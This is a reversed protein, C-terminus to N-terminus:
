LRSFVPSLFNIIDFPLYKEEDIGKNALSDSIKNFSRLIHIFTIEWGGFNSQYLDFAVKINSNYIKYRLCCQNVLLLSDSYIQLKSNEKEIQENYYFKVYWLGVLLACYEAMNNTCNPIKYSYEFIKKDEEFFVGGIGAIGPNGRSAGDTYLKKLKINYM